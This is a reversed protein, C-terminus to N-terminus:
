RDFLMVDGAAGPQMGQLAIGIVHTLRSASVAKRVSRETAAAPKGNIVSTAESATIGIYTTPGVNLIIDTLANINTMDRYESLYETNYDSGDGVSWNPQFLLDTTVPIEVAPLSSWSRSPREPMFAMQLPTIQGDNSPYKAYILSYKSIDFYVQGTDTKLVPIYIDNNEPLKFTYGTYPKQQGAQGEADYKTLADRNAKAQEIAGTSYKENEEIGSLHCRMYGLTLNLQDTNLPVKGGYVKYVATHYLQRIEVTSRIRHDKFVSRAVTIEYPESGAGAVVQQRALYYLVAINVVYMKRRGEDELLKVVLGVTEKLGELDEPPKGAAEAVVIYDAVTNLWALLRQIIIQANMGDFPNGEPGSYDYEITKHISVEPALAFHSTQTEPRFDVEAPHTLKVRPSSM